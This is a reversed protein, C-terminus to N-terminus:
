AKAQSESLHHQAALGRDELIVYLCPLIFLVLLSSAAIGFLLSVVLPQLIQAQLSTELLLPLMGAVTTATTIFVARFRERAAQVAAQHADLGQKQHEKIYTVLLISDNVVIGALSVFGMMSPITFDYGLLVHGWLAGILALPIALMVMVPEMYSRFQFSLIIFVGVLGMLFKKGISSGTSGGEKVEGEYSVSLSPYKALLPAVVTQDVAAIIEGTNAIAADVDGIITVSRQGDVRNIRAYGRAPILEAVASLPIQRGDALTIPYNQLQWWSSKDAKRLRVDLEITEDGRQFEDAKQGFFATRLQNAITAGDVGLSMAGPLLRVLWEEKGPRLDDMLNQVGDYEALAQQIEFSASSLMALDDGYLRIEIARGAPGVAPQKFALALSGPIEGVAERWRDQLLLLSTNRTEATLLDARVTAVHTGEEGADQNSNYEVIVNQVLAQQEPQEPTFAEDLKNLENVARAVLLETEYLPTGQPMLLRMELIDGELEPFAKFKLFGGAMLSISLFFLALVGGVAAYRYTVAREVWDVLVETRFREFRQNFRAKFGSAPTDQKKHLSHLLHNPLILFAEVLSVVLVALLMQPFVKMIQGIDGAIFALGVFVSATTLFSSLVGPAVQKVGKIVGEEVGEGREVHSAISEAIVIADDMLIGIAMLMGVMSIMNISVGLVTMLWFAGLFSIPLGMSVWFSYRWTFFLWMVAFVLLFGQWSNTTLMALRDSVIKAQDSTLAMEIGAPILQRELEVFKYVQEVLDLADQAKTKKIKLLAAPKGNFEVKAEDLEFRETVKGLDKLKLQGGSQTSAIVLEGLEKATVGQQDFRIQLTKGQTELNGAPLKINQREIHSVVDNISLGYQRLLALSLEVRLQRDSFGHIEVLSIDPLRQLKRKVSEAYDKLEAAPLDASIALTILSETRGLEKIVPSEAKDPFTDIADVETKVDSMLRTIDGGEQIEVIMKAMSERAECTIQEIDSLGDMAEELPVCLALESEEPNAGPYPVSVQIQSPAIEPFTERKLQPLASLGLVIIALMLLNAATPHRAFYAIM